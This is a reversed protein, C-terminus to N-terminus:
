EYIDGDKDNDPRDNPGFVAFVMFRGLLAFGICVVPIGLIFLWKM